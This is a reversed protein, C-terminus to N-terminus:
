PLSNTPHARNSFACINNELPSKTTPMSLLYLNATTHSARVLSILFSPGANFMTSRAGKSCATVLSAGILGPSSTKAPPMPCVPWDAFVISACMESLISPDTTLM